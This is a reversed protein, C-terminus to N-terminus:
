ELSLQKHQAPSEPLSTSQRSTDNILLRDPYHPDFMATQAPTLHDQLPHQDVLPILYLSFRRDLSLLLLGRIAAIFSGLMM